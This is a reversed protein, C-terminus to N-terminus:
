DDKADKKRRKKDKGKDKRKEKKERSKQVKDLKSIKLKDKCGKAGEDKSRNRKPKDTSALEPLRGSLAAEIRAVVEPRPMGGGSVRALKGTQEARAGKRATRGECAAFLEADTMTTGFHVNGERVLKTRDVPTGSGRSTGESPAPTSTGSQSTPTDVASRVFMGQYESLTDRETAAAAM